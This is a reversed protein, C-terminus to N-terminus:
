ILNFHNNINIRVKIKACAWEEYVSTKDKFDLYQTMEHALFFHHYKLLIQLFKKAKLHKFQQFTM